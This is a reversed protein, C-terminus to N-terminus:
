SRSGYNNRRIRIRGDVLLVILYVIIEVTKHSSLSMNNDKFVSTISRCYFCAFFSLTVIRFVAKHYPVCIFYFMKRTLTFCFSGSVQLVTYPSRIFLVLMVICKVFM